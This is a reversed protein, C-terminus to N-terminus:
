NSTQPCDPQNLVTSCTNMRLVMQLITESGSVIDGDDNRQYDPSYGRATIQFAFNRQSSPDAPSVPLREILCQPPQSYQLAQAAGVSDSLVETPVEVAQNDTWNDQSQWAVALSSANNPMPVINPVPPANAPQRVAQECYRLAVEAAHQAAQAANINNSILDGFLAGRLIFSSSFGIVVLLLLAVLMVVGSQRREPFAQPHPHKNM